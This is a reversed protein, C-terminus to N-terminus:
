LKYYANGLNFYLPGSEFGEDLIKQYSEVALEYKGKQYYQNGQDFVDHLNAAIVAQASIFLVLFIKKIVDM